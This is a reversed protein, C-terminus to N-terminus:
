WTGRLASNKARKAIVELLDGLDDIDEKCSINNIKKIFNVKEEQTM